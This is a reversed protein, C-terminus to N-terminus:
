SAPPEPIDGGTLIALITKCPECPCKEVAGKFRIAGILGLRQKIFTVLGKQIVPDLTANPDSM